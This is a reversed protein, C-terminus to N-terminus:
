VACGKKVGYLVKLEPFIIKKILQNTKAALMARKQDKKYVKIGPRHVLFANNLILFDYDLVCLAYGQTMKDSKGEWSLREDYLPDAHTGIFIPEWHIYRGNRKGVHFVKLDDTEKAMQWEKAKPINHCGPCLKKHFSVATGNNLMEILKTKSEPVQQNASVEFLHLPFVKPNKSLLPGRNEAIMALFQPIINPSPYLEIDSPLIYHTQATERAVNRGVNVPYLLKKQNKYMQSSSVNLFPPPLSCNYLETFVHNHRPVEKPVHKTSFYVHFTVLERVLGETCDRLYAISELTNKFDTGPAHLALSVPGRWRDLLPLLNDMFSYDAHTTYTVSEQCKFKKEAMVYNYLVWYDGRQQVRPAMPRDLCRTIEKVREFVNVVSQPTTSPAKTAEDLPDMPELAALNRGSQQLERIAETARSTTLVHVFFYIAIIGLTCKVAFAKRNSYMKSKAAQLDIGSTLISPCALHDFPRLLPQNIKIANKVKKSM